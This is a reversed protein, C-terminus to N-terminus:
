SGIEVRWRDEAEEAVTVRIDLFRRIVDINTRTHSSAVVSRFSGGGALAMPLPLQDALHEGVPVGAALYRRAEAAAQEAVVEARVGKEGFGTIVETVHESEIELIVVNGPGLSGPAEEVQLCAPEWSLQEGIVKLEREAIHRPLHAVVARARQSRTEGREPLDLRTMGTSPIISVHFRGGGVPYFGPRELTADVRVGMRNILPLFARALFDFPPAHPNHTGGALTVTSAAGAVLLPPLVTQLVLTASGATGVDFAYRGPVVEGPRFVLAQSGLAAGDTEASGVQAAALVSTLHQRQLGPKSRGARIKEIRFPTGTVLSLALATRLIQGGGEGQSGDIDLM